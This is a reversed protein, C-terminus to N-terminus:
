APTSGCTSQSACGCTQLLVLQDIYQLVGTQATGPHFNGSPLRGSQLALQVLAQNDQPMSNDWLAWIVSLRHLLRHWVQDIRQRALLKGRSTHREVAKVGGAERVQLPLLVVFGNTENQGLCFRCLPVMIRSRHALHHACDGVVKKGESSYLFCATPAYLNGHMQCLGAAANAKHRSNQAGCSSSSRAFYCQVLILGDQVIAAGVAM